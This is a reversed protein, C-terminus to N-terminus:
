SMLSLFLTRRGGCNRFECFYIGQWTGLRLKRNQIPISLSQGFLAAKLHATIDDSGEYTHKYIDLNEPILRDFFSDFDKRVTADANENLCLGASTHLLFINLLGKEPMDTILEKEILSTILHYGRKFPPLIIEKQIIM